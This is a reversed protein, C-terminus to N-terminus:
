SKIKNHQLAELLIKQQQQFSVSKNLITLIKYKM